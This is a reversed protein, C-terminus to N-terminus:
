PYTDYKELWGLITITCQEKAILMKHPYLHYKIGGSELQSARSHLM